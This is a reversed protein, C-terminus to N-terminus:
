NEILNKNPQGEEAERYGEENGEYGCASEENDECGVFLDVKVCFVVHQKVCGVHVIRCIMQSRIRKSVYSPEEVLM